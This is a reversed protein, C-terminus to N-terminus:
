LPQVFKQERGTMELRKSRHLPWLSSKAGALWNKGELWLAGPALSPAPQELSGAGAADVCPRGEPLRGPGGTGEAPGEAGPGAAGNLDGAPLREAPEPGRPATSPGRRPLALRPPLAPACRPSWAPLRATPAARSLRGAGASLSSLETSDSRRARLLSPAPDGQGRPARSGRGQSLGWGGLAGTSDRCQPAQPLFGPSSLCLMRKQSQTSSLRHEPSSAPTGGVSM